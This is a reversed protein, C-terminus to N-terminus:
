CFTVGDVTNCKKQTISKLRAEEYFLYPNHSENSGLLCLVQQKLDIYVIKYMRTVLEKKSVSLCLSM